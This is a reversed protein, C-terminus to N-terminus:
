GAYKNVFILAEEISECERMGISLTISYPYKESFTSPIAHEKFFTARDYIKAITKRGSKIIAEGKVFCLQEPTISVTAM